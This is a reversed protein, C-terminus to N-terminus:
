QVKCTFNAAEDTSGTGKYAAVQPYPCLRDPAHTPNTRSAVVRNPAQNREVWADLESVMDFNTTGDGGGCHGMGPVMYLRMAEETRASGLAYQVNSFYNISNRPAILQDNWGHYMILKGGRDVFPSPLDPNVADIVGAFKKEAAAVDRDFDITRWDWDPNDYIVYKYTETPIAM